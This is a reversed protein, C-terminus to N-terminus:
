INFGVFKKVKNFVSLIPNLHIKGKTGQADGSVLVIDKSSSIAINSSQIILNSDINLLFTDSEQNYKLSIKRMIDEINVVQYKESKIVSEELLVIGETKQLETSQKSPRVM